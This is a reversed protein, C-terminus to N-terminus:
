VAGRRMKFAAVVVKGLKHKIGRSRGQFVPWLWPTAPRRVTGFEIFRGAPHTTGIAYAPAEGRGTDVVEVTQGLEGPAGRRAEEAIADAEARLAEEVDQPLGSAEFRKRLAELGKVTVATM